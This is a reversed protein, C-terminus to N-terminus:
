PEGRPSAPSSSPSRRARRRHALLTGRGRPRYGDARLRILRLGYRGEESLSYRDALAAEAEDMEEGSEIRRLALERVFPDAGPEDEIREATLVIRDHHGKRADGWGEAKTRYWDIV